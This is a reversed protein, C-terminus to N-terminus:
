AILSAYLGLSILMCIAFTGWYKGTPMGLRSAANSHIIAPIIGFIGFLASVILTLAISPAEVAEWRHAAVNWRALQPNGNGPPLEWQNRQANWLAGPVELNSPASM